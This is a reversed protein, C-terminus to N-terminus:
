RRAPLTVVFRTHPSAADISLTGSHAEAFARSISLGFGTGQGAPKTTFFPQMVQARIEDPIGGGSDTVAIEVADANRSVEIRIWREPLDQVADAANAILNLLVQSIQAERCPIRLREDFPAIRVEVGLKRLREEAVALADRVIRAVRVDVFPDAWADRALSRVARVIRTMRDGLGAVVRISRRVDEPDSQGAALKQDLMELRGQLVGLPTGLEHAIGAAMEGLSALQEARLMATREFLLRERSRKYAIGLVAMAWVTLISIARNVVGKWQEERPVQLDILLGIVTLATAVGAALWTAGTGRSRLSLLVLLMYPVGAAVGIPMELDFLFTGAVIALALGASAVRNQTANLSAGSPAVQQPPSV